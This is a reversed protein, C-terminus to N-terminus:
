AVIITYAKLFEKGPEVKNINNKQSIEKNFGRDDCRGMWPELCVFPADKVSWIGFSPFGECKMGVYPTGDKHCVWAEEIQTGDLILADNDFIEENLVYTNNELKLTRKEEPIATGMGDETEKDVLIYELQDKGPFKLIYDSKVEDKKAFRFAPHAGITFYMTENGTNEVKWEVKVEKGELYYNIFLKFDFPYKKKTEESSNLLFSVMSDTSEVCEFVSDRAFGHQSTTYEEGNILMKNKYTKGVNPFLVPSHRKWFEPNGEWIIDTGDEKNYIKTIEAGDESAEVLLYQNELKMLLEEKIKGKLKVKIKYQNNREVNFKRCFGDSAYLIRSYDSNCVYIVQKSAMILNEYKKYLNLTGAVRKQIEFMDFPHTFYDMAGLEYAKEISEHNDEALIVIVPIREIVYEENMWELVQYGNTEPMNLDLLLASFSDEEKKLLEIAETGDKAETVIYEDGLIEKLIERNMKSDDAILLRNKERSEKIM